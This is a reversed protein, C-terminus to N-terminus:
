KKLQAQARQAAMAATSACSCCARAAPWPPASACSVALPAAPRTLTAPAEERVSKPSDVASIAELPRSDRDEGAATTSAELAKVQELLALPHILDPSFRIQFSANALCVDLVGPLALQEVARTIAMARFFAELSMSESVEAFLHEDGAISYRIPPLPHPHSM